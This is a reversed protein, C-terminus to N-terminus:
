EWSFSTDEPERGEEAGDLALLQARQGECAEVTLETIRTTLGNDESLRKLWRTLSPLDPPLDEFTLAAFLVASVESIDFMFRLAESVDFVFRPTELFLFPINLRHKM